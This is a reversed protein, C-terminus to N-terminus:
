VSWPSGTPFNCCNLTYRNRNLFKIYDTTSAIVVIVKFCNYKGISRWSSRLKKM